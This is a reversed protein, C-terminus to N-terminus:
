KPYAYPVLDFGSYYHVRLHFDYNLNWSAILDPIQWLHAAQHYLCIALGPRHREIISRAGLLAAYEAGEIDMKILDPRFNALCDDLSVCQIISDGTVSLASGSGQGSQFRLQQTQEAVGCPLLLSPHADPAIAPIKKALNRFNKQDPEFAALASLKYGRNLLLEVTDGDFAGCDVFHLDKKWSPLSTPFYQEDSDPLPSLEYNGLFRFRLIQAYLERSKEDAWLGYAAQWRRSHHRYFDTATLWYRDGLETSFARHFHIFNVVCGWGSQALMEMLVPMAVYANFVSVIIPTEAKESESILPDDPRMVPVGELFDLPSKADIIAKIVFGKGTLLRIVDRGTTGAGYIYLKGNCGLLNSISQDCLTEELHNSLNKFITDM